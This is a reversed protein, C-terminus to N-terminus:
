PSVAHAPLPPLGLGQRVADYDIGNNGHSATELELISNIRAEAPAVPKGAITAWMVAQLKVALTPHARYFTSEWATDVLPDRPQSRHLLHYTRAGDVPTMRVGGTTLRLALERHENLDLAEDFGGAELFADRRVSFNSGSSAAWLVTCEPHERLAEMELEYITRAASGHYIGADARGDIAAFNGLVDDRTVRMRELRAPEIAAMAAERGAAPTASEPDAFFRTGRLHFTEGRGAVDSATAHVAAHRAAMDPGALTDGDLFLLVDGSAVRAGTNSAASRGKAAAHDIAILELSPAAEALVARTADSSGDNVVVVEVPATQRSLSALTLRLRAAEDKTRVIVSVTM